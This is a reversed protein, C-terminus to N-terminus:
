LIRIYILIKYQLCSSCCSCSVVRFLWGSIDLSVACSFALRDVDVDVTLVWVGVIFGGMAAWGQTMEGLGHRSCTALHLSRYGPGLWAGGSLGGRGCRM